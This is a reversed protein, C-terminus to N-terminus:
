LTWQDPSFHIVAHFLICLATPNSITRRIRIIANPIIASLVMMIFYVRTGTYFPPFLVNRQLLVLPNTLPGSPSVDLAKLDGDLGKGKNFDTYFFIFPFLLFFLRIYLFPGIKCSILGKKARLSVRLKVRKHIM